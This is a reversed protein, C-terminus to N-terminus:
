FIRILYETLCIYIYKGTCQKALLNDIDRKWYFKLQSEWEFQQASSINDRIFQEVVDRAHIDNILITRLKKQDNSTLNTRIKTVIEDVQTNQNILYLKMAKEESKYIKKFVNEVEATWWIQISALCIMGPFDM